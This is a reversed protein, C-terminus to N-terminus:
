DKKQTTMDRRYDPYIVRDDGKAADGEEAALERRYDPYVVM